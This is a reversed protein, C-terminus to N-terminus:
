GAAEGRVSRAPFDLKERVRHYHPGCCWPWWCFEAFITIARAKFPDNVAFSLKGHWLQIVVTRHTLHVYLSGWTENVGREQLFRMMLVHLQLVIIYCIQSWRKQSQDTGKDGELRLTLAEIHKQTETKPQAPERIRVSVCPYVENITRRLSHTSFVIWRWFLLHRQM